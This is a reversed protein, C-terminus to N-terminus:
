ECAEPYRKATQRCWYEFTAEVFKTSTVFQKADAALDSDISLPKYGASASLLQLRAASELNVALYVARALTDGATLIGHNALLISNKNGLAGSIIRGEENALPVGPWRDLYAVDEHFMMMDMHSVVLPEGCMALASAHPPHTHVISRVDPRTSYVWLHFRTAPNAMGRGEIVDLHADVRVLNSVSADAFGTSFETTCFSDNDLKVSIQGALTNGHGQDSLYRCALAIKELESFRSETMTEIMDAKVRRHVDESAQELSSKPKHNMQQQVYNLISM